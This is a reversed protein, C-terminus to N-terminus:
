RGRGLGRADRRNALGGETIEIGQDKLPESAGLNRNSRSSWFAVAAMVSGVILMAFISFYVYNGSKNGVSMTSSKVSYTMTYGSAPYMQYSDGDADYGAPPRCCANACDRDPCSGSNDALCCNCTENDYDSCDCKKVRCCEKACYQDPCEGFGDHCCACSDESFINCDCTMYPRPSRTPNPTKNFQTPTPSLAGWGGGGGGNSSHHPKSKHHSKSKPHPKPKTPHPHARPKTKIGGARSSGGWSAGSSEGWGGGGAPGGWSGGSSPGQGVVGPSAGWFRDDSEGTGRDGWGRDGSSEGWGGGGSGGWGGGGSGGWGGGGSGGWSGGINGGWKGDEEPNGVWDDREEPNEGWSGGNNGGWKDDHHEDMDCCVDFGCCNAYNSSDYRTQCMEPTVSYCTCAADSLGRAAQSERLFSPMAKPKASAMGALLAIALITLLSNRTM